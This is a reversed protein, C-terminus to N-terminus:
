KTIPVTPVLHPCIERQLDYSDRSDRSDRSLIMLHIRARVRARMHTRARLGTPVTPVAKNILAKRAFLYPCPLSLYPCPLSLM